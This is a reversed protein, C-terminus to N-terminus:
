PVPASLPGSEPQHDDVVSVLTFVTVRDCRVLVASRTKGADQRHPACVGTRAMVCGFWGAVAVTV